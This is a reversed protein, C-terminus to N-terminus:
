PQNESTVTNADSQSILPLYLVNTLEVVETNLWQDDNPAVDYNEENAAGTPGDFLTVATNTAAAAGGVVNAFTLDAIQNSGVQVPRCPQPNTLGGQLV